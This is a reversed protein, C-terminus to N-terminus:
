RRPPAPSSCSMTTFSSALRAVDHAAIAANTEARVTRIAAEDAPAAAALAAALLLDFM